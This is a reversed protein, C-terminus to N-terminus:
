PSPPGALSPGRSRPRTSREPQIRLHGGNTRTRAGRHHPTHPGAPFGTRRPRHGGSPKRRSRYGGLQRNALSCDGASREHDRRLAAVPRDLGAMAVIHVPAVRGSTRQRRDRVWGRHIHHVRTARPLPASANEAARDIRGTGLRRSLRGRRPSAGHLRGAPRAPQSVCRSGATAVLHRQPSRQGM